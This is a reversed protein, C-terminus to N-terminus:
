IAPFHHNKVSFPMNSDEGDPGNPGSAGYFPSLPTHLFIDFYLIPQRVEKLCALKPRIGSLRGAM